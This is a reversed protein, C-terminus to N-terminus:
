MSEWVSAASANHWPKPWCLKARAPIEEMLIHGGALMCTIIHEIQKRKGKIVRETQAILSQIAQTADLTHDFTQNHDM